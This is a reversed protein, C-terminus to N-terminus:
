VSRANLTGPLKLCALITYIETQPPRPFDSVPINTPLPSHPDTVTTFFILCTQNKFRGCCILVSEFLCDPVRCKSSVSGCFDKTTHHFLPMLSRLSAKKDKKKDSGSSSGPSQLNGQDDVAGVVTVSSPDILSSSDSNKQPTDGQKRRHPNWWM